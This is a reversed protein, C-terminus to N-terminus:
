HKVEAAPFVAVTVVSLLVVAVAVAVVVVSMKGTPCTGPPNVFSDNRGGGGGDM